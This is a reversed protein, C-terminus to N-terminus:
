GSPSSGLDRDDAVVIKVASVIWQGATERDVGMNMLANIAIRVLACATKRVMEDSNVQNRQQTKRRM